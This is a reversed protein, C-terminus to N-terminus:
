LIIETELLRRARPLWPYLGLARRLASEAEGKRGAVKLALGLTMQAAADEPSAEVRELAAGIEEELLADAEQTRGLKGLCLAKYVSRDLAGTHSHRHYTEAAAAEWHRTAAAADGLLECVLGACWQPRSDETQAPKGIRLNTPYELATEFDVRAGALDGRDLRESGRGLCADVYLGRMRFEAEWRHFSHTTLLSIARDWQALEVCALIQQAAILSRRQVEAPAADLVALRERPDARMARLVDDLELYVRQHSPKRAAAERLAEEAKRLDGKVERYALGLNRHVETSSTMHPAAAEWEVLAEERRDLHYLLMGLYHHAAGDGPNRELAARLVAEMEWHHPFALDTPLEAAKKRLAAAQREVNRGLTYHALICHALAYHALPSTQVAPVHEIAWELLVTAEYPMGAGAYDFALELWPDAANPLMSRLRRLGTTTTRDTEANACFHAEATVLRDLPTLTQVQELLAMAEGALEVKRLAAALRSLARADEPNYGVAEALTEVAAGWDRRAMAMEGLEVRASHAFQPDAAARWLAVEAEETRGARRLAAGLYYAADAREPALAAAESLREIAATVDSRILLRGVAIMAEACAPDADLVKRYAALARERGGSEETRVAERLLSGTTEAPSESKGSARLKLTRPTQEETYRIIEEDNADLVALTYRADPWSPAIPVQVRLPQNPLLHATAQHLVREGAAIQITASRIPRTVVVGLDVTGNQRSLRVAADTNAWAFGGIGKVPYWHETWRLSHHPPLLRFTSQDVFRGSQIECYPGDDDSLISAWMRGAEATGWTFYKKGFCEHVNAVHVVGFDRQEYYVGFFDELSDLMFSDSSWQFAQYRSLDRGEHIPWATEGAWTRCRTAPYILRMDDRAPVAANAWFYYPHPLPTRNSLRVETEIRSSKPRLRIGVAWAMRHKQEVDGVWITASGDEGRVVRSDIPSITTVTHGRPFNWEVGGSIWAGRLAILGPKVVHNHYFLDEGTATDVASLLHGGLEPLVVVRLYENELTLARYEVDRVEEGLDDMMPYPYIDWHARRHFPPYPDEPGWVYTKMVLKEERSRVAVPSGKRLWVSPALARM